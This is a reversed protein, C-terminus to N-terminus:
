ASEKRQQQQASLWEDIATKSFRWRGDILFGPLEGDIALQELSHAPVRLYNAAERATLMTHQNAAVARFLNSLQEPTLFLELRVATSPAPQHDVHLEHTPNMPQEEFTPQVEPAPTAEPADNWRDELQFIVAPTPEHAQQGQAAKRIADALNM